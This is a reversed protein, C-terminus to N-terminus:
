ARGEGSVTRSAALVARVAGVTLDAHRMHVNHFRDGSLRHTAHPYRRAIADALWLHETALTRSDAVAARRDDPGGPPTTPPRTASFPM